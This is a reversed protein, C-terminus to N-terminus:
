GDPRIVQEADVNGLNGFVQQLITLERGYTPTTPTALNVVEGDELGYRDVSGVLGNEDFRVVVVRREVLEPRYFAFREQRSAVYIWVDEDFPALTSPRGLKRLVSGRTDAGAAIEELEEIQPTFGHTTQTPACSTAGLAAALALSGAARLALRTPPTTRRM